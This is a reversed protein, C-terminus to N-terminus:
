VPEGAHATEDRGVEILMRLVFEPALFRACSQGDAVLALMAKGEAVALVAHDGPPLTRSIPPLAVNLARVFQFQAPTLEIVRSVSNFDSVPVCDASGKDLWKAFIGSDAAHACFSSLLAASLATSFWAYKM